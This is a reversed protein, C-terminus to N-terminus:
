EEGGGAGFSPRGRHCGIAIWYRRSAAAWGAREAFITAEQHQV